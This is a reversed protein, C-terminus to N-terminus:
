TCCFSSVLALRPSPTLLSGKCPAARRTSATVPMLKNAVSTLVALRLLVPLPLMRKTSVAAPPPRVRSLALSPLALLAAMVVPVTDTCVKDVVSPSRVRVGTATVSTDAGPETLRRAPAAKVKPVLASRSRGSASESLSRSTMVPVSSRCAPVAMTKVPRVSLATPSMRTCAPVLKASPLRSLVPLTASIAPPEM